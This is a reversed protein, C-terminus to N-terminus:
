MSWCVRVTGKGQEHGDTRNKGGWRSIEEHLKYSHSTPDPYTLILQCDPCGTTSFSYESTYRTVVWQPAFSLPGEQSPLSWLCPSSRRNHDRIHGWCVRSSTWLHGTLMAQCM